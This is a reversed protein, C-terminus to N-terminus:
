AKGVPAGVTRLGTDCSAFRLRGGEATVINALPHEMAEDISAQTPSYAWAKDVQDVHGTEVVRTRYELAADLADQVPGIFRYDDAFGLITVSPYKKAVDEAISAVSLVFLLGGLPCGQQSGEESLLEAFESHLVHEAHVLTTRM